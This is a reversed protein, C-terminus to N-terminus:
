SNYIHIPLHHIMTNTMPNRTPTLVTTVITTITQVSTDTDHADPTTMTRSINRNVRTDPTRTPKQNHTITLFNPHHHFEHLFLLVLDQEHTIRTM